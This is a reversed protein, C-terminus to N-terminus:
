NTFIDCFFTLIFDTVSDKMNRFAGRRLIDHPKKHISNNHFFSLIINIKAVNCFFFMFHCFWSFGEVITIGDPTERPM